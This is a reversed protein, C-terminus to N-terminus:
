VVCRGVPHAAQEPGCVDPLNGRAPVRLPPGDRPARRPQHPTTTHHPHTNTTLPQHNAPTPYTNIGGEGWGVRGREERVCVYMFCVDFAIRWAGDAGWARAGGGGREGGVCSGAGDVWGGFVCVCVCMYLVWTVFAVCRGGGLGAGTHTGTARRTFWVTAPAYPDVRFNYTRVETKRKHKHEHTIQSHTHKSPPNPLRNHTQPSPQNTRPIHTHTCAHTHTETYDISCSGGDM